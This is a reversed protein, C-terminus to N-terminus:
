YIISFKTNYVHYLCFYYLLKLSGSHSMQNLFLEECIIEKKDVALWSIFLKYLGFLSIIVVIIEFSQAKPRHSEVVTIKFENKGNQRFMIVPFDYAQPNVFQRTKIKKFWFISIVYTQGCFIHFVLPHVTDKTWKFVHACRDNNQYFTIIM